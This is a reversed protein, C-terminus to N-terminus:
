QVVSKWATSGAGTPSGTTSVTEPYRLPAFRCAPKCSCCSVPSAWRRGNPSRTRRYDPRNRCAAQRRGTYGYFGHRPANRSAAYSWREPPLGDPGPAAAATRCGTTRVSGYWGPAAGRHGGSPVRRIRPENLKREIRGVRAKTDLWSSLAMLLLGAGFGALTGIAALTWEM